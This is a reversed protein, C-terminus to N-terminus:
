EVIESVKNLVESDTAKSTKYRQYLREAVEKM